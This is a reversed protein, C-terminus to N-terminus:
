HGRVVIGIIMGKTMGIFFLNMVWMTALVNAAILFLVISQKNTM